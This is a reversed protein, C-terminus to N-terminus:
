SGLTGQVSPDEPVVAPARKVAAGPELPIAPVIANVAPFELLTKVGARISAERATPPPGLRLIEEDTPIAVGDISERAKGDSGLVSRGDDDLASYTEAPVLGLWPDRSPTLFVEAYIRDTLRDIDEIENRAFWADIMPRLETVNKLSDRATAREFTEVVRAFSTDSYVRRSKLRMLARSNADLVVKEAAQGGTAPRRDGEERLRDRHFDAIFRKKDEGQIASVRTALEEARTLATMFDGPGVLGPLVDLVDGDADLIYHLSNGTVTREIRRGDGFDITMHPAPRVSEWHVIWGARL